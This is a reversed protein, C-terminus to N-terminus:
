PHNNPNPSNNQVMKQQQLNDLERGREIALNWTDYVSCRERNAEAITYSTCTSGEM